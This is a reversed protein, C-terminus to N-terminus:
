MRTRLPGLHAPGVPLETDDKDRLRVRYRGSVVHSVSHVHRLNVVHSKHIRVFLDPPLRDLIETLGTPIAIDSETTHIVVNKSHATIHTIDGFAISYARIRDRVTIGEATGRSVKRLKLMTSVRALLESPQFPKVLYDNAGAAFAADIDAMMNKATLMIVPLEEPSRSIRIRRCVDYGSMIPMMIDLLVLSLSDDKEILDLARIGNSATKVTIDRSEFFDQVVRLSVTDDDVVLIVPRKGLDNKNIGAPLHPPGTENPTPADGPMDTMTPATEDDRTPATSVPLTFSFVSGGGTRPAMAISGGHAEVVQKAIALGLGTGGYSRTDGADAQRYAEFISERYEEPVGIGTDSVRVEIMARADGEHDGNSVRMVRASLEITGETTFKIANGLLNYLVQRVRDEDAWAAPIDPTIRNAIEMPKDGALPLSLQVVTESLAHLDVPRPALSLGEEQIKAMDLLDNVMAALRAGSAAILSATEVAKPPLPGTDGNALSNSLGIMGHLPTRLEHSTAALFQDKLRDLRELTINKETLERSMEEVTGLARAFRRSVVITSSICFLVMAHPVLNGTDIVQLYYLINNAAAIYIPCLSAFFLLADRRKNIIAKCLGFLGYTFLMVTFAFFLYMISQATKFGVFFLPVIFCASAAQAFRIISKSFDDPFLSWAIMMFLLMGAIVTVFNIIFPNGTPSLGSTLIPHEVNYTNVASVLSALGIYLSTPDIRRFLFFLVNYIASFLTLGVIVMIINLRYFENRAATSGNEMRLQRNIGGSAHDRNFVQLVIENVGAQLTFSSLHRNHVYIYDERTKAARGSDGRRDLLVGNVWLKYVSFIGRATLAKSKADPGNIIKLRYTARGEGPLPAGNYTQEKWPGPVTIFGCDTKGATRSFDNPALERDWCFEWEGNLNIAGDREFDWNRLDIVGKVAVPRKEKSSLPGCGTCTTWALVCLVLAACLRQM